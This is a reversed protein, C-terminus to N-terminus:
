FSWSFGPIKVPTRSKKVNVILKMSQFSYMGYSPFGDPTADLDIIQKPHPLNNLDLFAKVLVQADAFAQKKNYNNPDVIYVM